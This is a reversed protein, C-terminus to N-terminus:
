KLPHNWFLLCWEEHCWQGGLLEVDVVEEGLVGCVEGDEEEGGGDKDGDQELDNGVGAEGSGFCGEEESGVDGADEEGDM